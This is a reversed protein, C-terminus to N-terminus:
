WSWPDNGSSLVNALFILAYCICKKKIATRLVICNTSFLHFVVHNTCYMVSYIQKM